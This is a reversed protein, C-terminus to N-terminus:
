PAPSAAAQPRYRWIRVGAGAATFVSDAGALALRDGDPWYLRSPVSLLTPDRGPTPYLGLTVVYDVGQGDLYEALRRDRLVDQYAYSNVLGDLAITPREGLWAVLGPDTAAIVANADVHDHIWAGAEALPALSTDVPADPRLKRHLDTAALALLVAAGTLATRTSLRTAAVGLMVALLVNGLAFHWSAVGWAMQKQFLLEYAYYAVQGALMVILAGDVSRPLPPRWGTARAALWLLAAFLPPLGRLYRTLSGLTPVVLHPFSSKLAGSIPLAHGFAVVSLAMYTVLASGVVFLPMLARVVDPRAGAGATAADARTGSLGEWAGLLLAPVVLFVADLRALVTVAGFVAIRGDRREGTTGARVLEALFLGFLLIGLPAETLLWSAPLVLLVLAAVTVAGATEGVPRLARVLVVAAGAYALLGFLFAARELSGPGHLAFAMAQLVLWWLPHYGNTLTLGDFTSLRGAAGNRAIVLYFLADDPVVRILLERVPRTLYTTAVLLWLVAAVVPVVRGRSPPTAASSPAM